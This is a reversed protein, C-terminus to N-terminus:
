LQLPRGGANSVAGTFDPTFSYIVEPGYAGSGWSPKVYQFDYLWFFGATTGSM